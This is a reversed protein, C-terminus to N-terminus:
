RTGEKLGVVLQGAGCVVVVVVEARFVKGADFQGYGGEGHGGSLCGSIL